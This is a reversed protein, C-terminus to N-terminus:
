KAAKHRRVAIKRSIDRRVAVESGDVRYVRPDGGPASRAPTIEVGPIFGLNMLHEAVSTDLSLDHVLAAEGDPLDSLAFTLNSNM